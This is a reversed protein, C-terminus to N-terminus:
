FYTTINKRLYQSKTPSLLMSGNEWKKQDKLILLQVTEWCEKMVQHIKGNSPNLNAFRSISKFVKFRIPPPSGGANTRILDAFRLLLVNNFNANKLEIARDFEKFQSGPFVFTSNKGERNGLAIDIQQSLPLKTFARIAPVANLFGPSSM